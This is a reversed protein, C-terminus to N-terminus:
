KKLNKHSLIFVCMHLQLVVKTFFRMLAAWIFEILCSKLFDPRELLGMTGNSYFMNRAEAKHKKWTVQQCSPMWACCWTSIKLHPSYSCCLPAVWPWNERSAETSGVRSSCVITGQLTLAEDAAVRRTESCWSSHVVGGRESVVRRKQVAVWVLHYFFFFFFQVLYWYSFYYCIRQVAPM